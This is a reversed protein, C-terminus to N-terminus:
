VGKLLLTTASLAKGANVSITDATTALTGDTQVYYTSGITLGSQTTTIGGRLMVTATATDAFAGESTGIFNTSTLNTAASQYVTATGYHSNGSDRFAIVVRNSNSDFTASPSRAEAAEFVSPTNFSISTGSVTCSVVTGYNSNGGDRYAIVAKNSSSDFVVSSEWLVGTNFTAATGFSIATGSVTGVIATGYNSNGEDRYAIVAKNVNTDFGSAIETTGASEFVVATGFTISTGSVTGVIATGYNSTTQNRYAIVVKNSSSDFAPYVYTTYVSAFTAISGFSIGTGSVTGVAARGYNSTVIDQFCAVVKNASSDFTLRIHDQGGTVFSTASGFSIATGSVTGVIGYGYGWAGQHGIVVKGANTDFVASMRSTKNESSFVVATGFSISTGSVTGVIATGYNSNGYDRYAIVVKNAASDFTATIGYYVAAGEFVVASGTAAAGIGVVKATGDAKLIVKDGNSLAGSAVMEVTKGSGGAPLLESLNSM